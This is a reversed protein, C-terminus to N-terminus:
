FYKSLGKGARFIIRRLKMVDEIGCMGCLYKFSFNFGSSSKRGVLNLSEEEDNYEIYNNKLEENEQNGYIVNGEFLEVMKEYVYKKEIMKHFYELPHRSDHSSDAEQLTGFPLESLAFNVKIFLM